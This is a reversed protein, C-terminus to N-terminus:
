QIEKGKMESLVARVWVGGGKEQIWEWLELELRVALTKTEKRGGRRRTCAPCQCSPKHNDISRAM